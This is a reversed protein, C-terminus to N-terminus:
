HLGLFQTTAIPNRDSLRVIRGTAVGAMMIFDRSQTHGSSESDRLCQLTFSDTLWRAIAGTEDNASFECDLKNGNWYRM